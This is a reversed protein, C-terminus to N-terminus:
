MLPAQYAICFSAQTFVSVIREHVSQIECCRIASHELRPRPAASSNNTFMSYRGAFRNTQSTERWLQTISSHVRANADTRLSIAHRLWSVFGYDAIM